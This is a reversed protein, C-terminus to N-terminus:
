SERAWWPPVDPDSLSVRRARISPDRLDIRGGHRELHALLRSAEASMAREATSRGSDAGTHARARLETEVGARWKFHHVPIVPDNAPWAAPSLHNGLNLPTSAKALVVKRPDGGAIAATVFGGFPYSADLGRSLDWSALTGDEAIRDLLLGGVVPNDLREAERIPAELGMPYVQFEDSDAILHWGLGADKRLTDRLELHMQVTWPGRRLTPPRGAANTCVDFLLEASELSVAGAPLHLGLCFHEIGLSRYHGFFESLIRSDIPGIVTVLAPM